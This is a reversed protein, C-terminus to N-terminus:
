QLQNSIEDLSYTSVDFGSDIMVQEEKPDVPSIIKEFYKGGGTEYYLSTIINKKTNIWCDFEKGDVIVLRKGDVIREREMDFSVKVYPSVKSKGVTVIKIIDDPLRTASNILPSDILVHANLCQRILNIDDGLEQAESHCSIAVFLILFYARSM